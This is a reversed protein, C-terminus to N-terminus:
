EIRNSAAERKIRGIQVTKREGPKVLVRIGTTPKRGIETNRQVLLEGPAIRSRSFAGNKPFKHEQDILRITGWDPHTNLKTTFYVGQSRDIEEDKDTRDIRGSVQAWPQLRITSNKAHQANNVVAIGGEHLVILQFKNTSSVSRPYADFRGDRGSKTHNFFERAPTQLRGNQLYLEHITGRPSPSKALVDAGAAPKGNPLLVRGSKRLKPDPKLDRPHKIADYRDSITAGAGLGVRGMKYIKFDIRRQVETWTKAHNWDRPIQSDTFYFEPRVEASKALEKLRKRIGKWTIIKRDHIIVHKAVVFWPRVVKIGPPKAKAPKRRKPKKKEPRLEDGKAVANKLDESVIRCEALHPGVIRTIEITGKSAGPKKGKGAKGYVRYRTKVKAGDRVGVNIWCMKITPDVVRVIPNKKAPKKPPNPKRAVVPRQDPQPAAATRTEPSEPLLMQAFLMVLPVLAMLLLAGRNLRLPSHHEVGLVRLVRRKFQSPKEGTAALAGLTRPNGGAVAVEAMRVMADAYAIRECGAELVLDDCCNEREDSLRRSVYWVAPHFFLLSEAVRQLLNVLLDYRRIHALEHTILAQLQRPSLGTTLTAPLLVMPRLIGVVIPVSVSACWAVVPVAKLGLRRAQQKVGTLITADLVPSSERRLRRGGHLAVIVRLLMAVVGLLYLSATWPAVLVLPSTSAVPAAITWRRPETSIRAVPTAASESEPETKTPSSAVPSAQIPERDIGIDDASRRKHIDRGADHRRSEGQHENQALAPRAPPSVVAFTVSLCFLMALLAVLNVGYRLRATANRLVHDLALVVLGIAAAQWLFHLLTQTLKISFDSQLANAPNLIQLANM